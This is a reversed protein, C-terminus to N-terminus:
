MTEFIEVINEDPDFCRFSRRGESKTLQKQIPAGIKLINNYVEDVSKAEISIWINKQRQPKKLRTAQILVLKGGINVHTKSENLVRMGIGKEYFVRSKKLDVVLMKLDINVINTSINKTSTELPIEKHSGVVSDVSKNEQRNIKKIYLTQGDVAQLKWSIVKITKVLPKLEQSSMIRAERGDPLVILDDTKSNELKQLTSDLDRKSIRPSLLTGDRQGKEKQVLSEGISLIYRSDQLQRVRNELWEVGLIAGLLGGTMSALTDTDAGKAFAAEIIGNYPDAAYRAALFISAAAAITGAGNIKKDFCGLQTLVEEDVSLAGQKMASRCLELLNLMERVTEKWLFYYEGNNTEEASQKWNPWFDSLDPFESWSNVNALVREVIEGYGLTGTKKLSEWIAFGYVLAGVLARPHGHTCIGDAVISKAIKSFDSDNTALLCHPMIRMAVGNGGANFYVRRKEKLTQCWPEQGTIWSEVARKTAGGGGREYLTWAPLERLTFNELWHSNLSLSRAICLLLQTDDSYEGSNIIEEHAYFRGGARRRWQQLEQFQITRDSSIGVKRSRDEQPWGLADGFAAGLFAGQAKILLEIKSNENIAMSVEKPEM